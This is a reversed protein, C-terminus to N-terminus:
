SYETHKLAKLTGGIPGQFQAQRVVDVVGEAGVGAGLVDLGLRDCCLRDSNIQPQGLLTDYSVDRSIGSVVVPSRTTPGEDGGGENESSPPYGHLSLSLSLGYEPLVQASSAEM